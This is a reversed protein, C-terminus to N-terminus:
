ETKAFGNYPSFFASDIAQANLRSYTVAYIGNETHTCNIKDVILEESGDEKKIRVWFDCGDDTFSFVTDTDGSKYLVKGRSVIIIGEGMNKLMAETIGLKEFAELQKKDLVKIYDDGVFSFATVFNDSNLLELYEEMSWHWKLQYMNEDQLYRAYCYDWKDYGKGGRHDPLNYNETLYRGLYETVKAGGYVNLHHNDAYDTTFDLGIEDNMKNFNLMPIGIEKAYQEVWDLQNWEEPTVAANYPALYFVLEIGEERCLEVIKNLWSLKEEDISQPVATDSFDRPTGETYLNWTGYYGLGYMGFGTFDRKSIEWYRTHYVPFRLQYDVYNEDGDYLEKVLAARDKSQNLAMIEEYSTYDESDWVTYVMELLMVKPKQYNLTEKMFYYTTKLSLGIGGASASTYGYENWLLGHNVTCMNHSSGYCLIDASDKPLDYFEDWNRLGYGDKWELVSLVYHVSVYLAAVFVAALVVNRLAKLIKSKM